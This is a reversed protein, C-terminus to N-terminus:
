MIEVWFKIGDEMGVRYALEGYMAGVRNNVTIVQNVVKYQETSLGLADLRNFDERQRM